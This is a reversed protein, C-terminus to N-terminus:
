NAAKGLAPALVRDLARGLDATRFPKGVFVADEPLEIGAAHGSVFVVPLGPAQERLRRALAPGDMLPMRVDTVLADIRWGEREALLLAEGPGEARLPRYGLAALADAVARGVQPEDDVVLVTLGRGRAASPARAPRPGASAAGDALPLRIAFRCGRGPASKVEITGGAQTVIGYVTALGLGTGKGAKTTFFPEFARARTAEDMGVGTDEVELVAHDGDRGARIWLTGGDPMADRANAALNLLVQAFRTPDLRVPVEGGGLRLEVRIGEGVLKRVMKEHGRVVEVLDVVRPEAKERRGFALLQAALGAAGEAAERIRDLRDRASPPLDGQIGAMEAQGLIVTLYNNFDHAVAGALQGLTELRRAQDLAREMQRERTIDRQIGVYGTIRGEADRIPSVTADVEFPTGDKRRNVFAGTWTEGRRLTEEFEAYFAAPHEGSRVLDEVRRGLAEDETWGTIREFAPNVYAIRGAADTVIVMEGANEVAAHLRALTERTRLRETLDVFVALTGWAEGEATRVPRARLVTPVERGDAGVLTRLEERFRGELARAYGGGELLARRSEEDYFEALPRGVIRDKPLGVAECFARNADAVVPADGERRTLCCPVPSEEFLTRYRAEAEARRALAERLVRVPGRAVLVAAAGAILGFHLLYAWLHPIHPFAFKLTEEAAEALAVAVALSLLVRLLIRRPTHDM